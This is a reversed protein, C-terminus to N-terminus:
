RPGISRPPQPPAILAALQMLYRQEGRLAEPGLEIRVNGRLITCSPQPGRELTVTWPQAGFVPRSGFDSLKVLFEPAVEHPGHGAQPAASAAPLEPLEDARISWTLVGTDDAVVSYGPGSFSYGSLVRQAGTGQYLLGAGDATALTALLRQQLGLVREDVEIRFRLTRGESDLDLLKPTARALNMHWGLDLLADGLDMQHEQWGLRQARARDIRPAPGAQEVDRARVARGEARLSSAAEKARVAELNATQEAMRRAEHAGDLRAGLFLFLSLAGLVGLCGLGGLVGLAIKWGRGSSRVAPAPTSAIRQVDTRVESAHQYRREPEKALTKMVVPDVRADLPGFKSPLQFAGIPLEGTLLEYFVVGVAYIDARHDVSLPREWQEPAMYRPTGVIQGTETLCGTRPEQGLLKALGFDLIRVRGRRDVLINEPKVDRHVVGRDHAAQLADCVQGVIGLATRADVERARIMQRLSVGEVHEMLLFYHPGARGSDYIAVINEHALSALTRAEREFREGFSPSAVADLGLIKLAAPRELRKQRVRYVAGWGGLGILAQLELDPFHPALEEISPPPPRQPEVPEAPEGLGAVLLCGACLGQVAEEASIGAGCRPCSRIESM